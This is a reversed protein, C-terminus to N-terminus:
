QPLWTAVFYGVGYPAQYALLDARVRELGGPAAVAAAAAHWAPLGGAGLARARHSDLAALGHADGAALLAAVSDDWAVAGPDFAVPAQPTRSSAGDGMVLLGTRAPRSALQRGLLVTEQPSAGAGVEIMARTRVAEVPRVRDLLWGGITLAAPLVARGEGTGIDVGFGRLSGAAGVPHERTISGPGLVTVEGVGADLMALVATDCAMRLGALEGAAGCAVEPVLLPPVPCFAVAVLV